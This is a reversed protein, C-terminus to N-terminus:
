PTELGLTLSTRPPCDSSQENGWVTPSRELGQGPGLTVGLNIFWRLVSSFAMLVGLFNKHELNKGIEINFGHSRNTKHFACFIIKDKWSPMYLAYKNVFM